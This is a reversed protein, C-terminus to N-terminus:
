SLSVCEMYKAKLNKIVSEPTPEKAAMNRGSYLVEIGVAAM